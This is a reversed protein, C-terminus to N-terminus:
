RRRLRYMMLLASVAAKAGAQRFLLHGDSGFCAHAPLSTGIDHPVFCSEVDYRAPFCKTVHIIGGEHILPWAAKRWLGRLALM